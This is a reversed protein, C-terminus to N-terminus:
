IGILLLNGRDTSKLALLDQRDCLAKFASTAIEISRDKHNSSEFFDPEKTGHVLNSRVSYMKKVENFLERRASSDHPELVHAISGAIRFGVEGQNTGFLNEWCIVADVFSDMPDFRESAASLIRRMGMDLNAPNKSVKTSWEAARVATEADIEIPPHHSSISHHISFSVSNGAEIPNVVTTAVGIPAQPSGERAFLIALRELDIMRRLETNSKILRSRFQEWHSDPDTAPFIDLIEIQYPIELVSQIGAADIFSQHDSPTFPRITGSHLSVESGEPIVVNSLGVLAKTNAKRTRALKRADQLSQRVLDFFGTPTCDNTSKKLAARLLAGALTALQLTSGSGTSWYIMSSIEIGVGDYTKPDPAHPFLKKLDSDELILRSLDKTSQTGRFAIGGTMASSMGGPDGLPLTTFLTAPYADSAITFLAAEIPDSSEKTEIRGGCFKRLANAISSQSSEDYQM